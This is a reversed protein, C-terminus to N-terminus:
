RGIRSPNTAPRACVDSFAAPACRGFRRGWYGANAVGSEGIGAFQVRLVPGDQGSMLAEHDLTLTAGGVADWGAPTTARDRFSRNRLLEGYLGGDYSHNIEETMLGYFTPSLAHLARDTHITISGVPANLLSSVVLISLLM